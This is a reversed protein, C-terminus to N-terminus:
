QAIGSKQWLSLDRYIRFLTQKALLSGSNM